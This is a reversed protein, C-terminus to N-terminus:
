LSPGADMFFSIVDMEKAFQPNAARHKRFADIQGYLRAAIDAVL